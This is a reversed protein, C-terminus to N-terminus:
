LWSKVAQDENVVAYLKAIASEMAKDNDVDIEFRMPVKLEWSLSRVVRTFFHDITSVEFRSYNHLINRLARKARKEIEMRIGQKKFDNEIVLRMPTTKGSAIKELDEIIRSKMERTAENTFTIALIHKYDNPDRLVLELYEKVLAFTKGSGASSRYIIFNKRPEQPSPSASFLDLQSTSM